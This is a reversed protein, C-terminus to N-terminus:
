VINLSINLILLENYVTSNGRWEKKWDLHEAKIHDVVEVEFEHVM